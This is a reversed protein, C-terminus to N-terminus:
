LVKYALDLLLPIVLNINRGEGVTMDTCVEDLNCHLAGTYVNESIGWQSEYVVDRESIDDTKAPCGCTSYKSELTYYLQNEPNTLSEAYDIRFFHSTQLLIKIIKRIFFCLIYIIAHKNTDM